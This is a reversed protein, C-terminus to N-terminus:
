KVFKDFKIPIAINSHPWYLMTMMFISNSVLKNIRYFIKGSISILFAIPPMERNGEWIKVDSPVQISRMTTITTRTSLHAVFARARSFMILFRGAFTSFDVM